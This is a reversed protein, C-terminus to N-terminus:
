KLAMNRCLVETSLCLRRYGDNAPGFIVEGQQNKYVITDKHGPVPKSTRGVLTIQVSRIKQPDSVSGLNPNLVNGAGDLYVFNLADIYDAVPKKNGFPSERGLKKVGSVCYLYYSIDENYETADGNANRDETFRIKNCSAYLIGANAKGTPDCGATAIDREMFYLATRMKAQVQSLEDQAAYSRQQSRYVSYISAAVVGALMMALLLEVLTFGRAKNSNQKYSFDDQLM